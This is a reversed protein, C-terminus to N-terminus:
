RRGRGTGVREPSRRRGTGRTPSVRRGDRDRPRRARRGGEREADLTDYAPAIADAKAQAQVAREAAEVANAQDGADRLRLAEDRAAAAEELLRVKDDLQDAVREMERPQLDVGKEAAHDEVTKDLPGVQDLAEQARREAASARQTHSRAMARLADAAEREEQAEAPNGSQELTAASTGRESAQKEFDVAERHERQAQIEAAKAKQRLAWAEAAAEDHARRRERRPAEGM